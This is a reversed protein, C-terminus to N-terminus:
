RHGIPQGTGPQLIGMERGGLEGGQVHLNATVFDPDDLTIFDCRTAPWYLAITALALLLGALWAPFHPQVPVTATKSKTAPKRMLSQVILLLGPVKARGNQM